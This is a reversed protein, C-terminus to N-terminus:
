ESSKNGKKPLHVSHINPLAGGSAVTVKLLFHGSKVVVESERVFCMYMYACACAAIVKVRMYACMSMCMYVWSTTGLIM